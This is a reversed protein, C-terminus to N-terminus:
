ENKGVELMKKTFRSLYDMDKDEIGKFALRDKRCIVMQGYIPMGSMMTALPNYDHQKVEADADVLGVYIDKLDRHRLQVMELCGKSSGTLYKKLAAREQFFGLRTRGYVTVKLGRVAKAGM